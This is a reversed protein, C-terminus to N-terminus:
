AQDAPKGKYRNAACPSIIEEKQAQEKVNDCVDMIIPMLKQVIENKITDDWNECPHAYFFDSHERNGTKNGLSLEGSRVYLKNLHEATKENM